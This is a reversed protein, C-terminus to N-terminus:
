SMDDSMMHFLCFFWGIRLIAFGSFSILWFFGLCMGHGLDNKSERLNNADWKNYRCLASVVPFKNELVRRYKM